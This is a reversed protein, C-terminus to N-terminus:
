KYRALQEPHGSLSLQWLQAAFPVMMLTNIQGEYKTHALNKQSDKDRLMDESIHYYRLLNVERLLDSM